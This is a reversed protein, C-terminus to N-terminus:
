EILAWLAVLVGHRYLNFRGLEAMRSIFGFTGDRRQMELIFDIGMDYIVTDKYDILNTCIILEALIDLQRKEIYMFIGKALFMRLFRLARESLFPTPDRHGYDSLAFIEHTIDYYFSESTPTLAPFHSFYNILSQKMLMSLPIKTPYGMAKLFVIHTMAMIHHPPYLM